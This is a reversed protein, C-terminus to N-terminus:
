CALASPWEAWSINSNKALHLIACALCGRYVGSITGQLKKRNELSLFLRLFWFLQHPFLQVCHFAAAAALKELFQTHSTSKASTPVTFM